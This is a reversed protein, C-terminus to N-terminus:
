PLLVRPRLLYALAVAVWGRMTREGIRVFAFTAGVLAPPGAVVVQLPLPGSVRLYLWWGLAVGAVLCLLDTGTLGWVIQDDLDLHQPVRVSEV